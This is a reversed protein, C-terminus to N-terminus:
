GIAIHRGRATSSAQGSPGYYINNGQVSGHQLVNLANQTRIIQKNILTGNVRNAEHAIKALDILQYWNDSAEQSAAASEIWAQMGLDNADFGASALAQYRQHSLQAVAAAARAKPETLSAVTETNAQILEEQELMLLQTLARVAKQEEHLSNAPSTSFSDM